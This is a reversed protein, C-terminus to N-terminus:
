YPRDRVHIWYLLRSLLMEGVFFIAVTVAIDVGSLSLSNRCALLPILSEPIQDLGTAGSSPPLNLRRKLFSSLLDGAMAGSGVLFGNKLDLGVFPACVSTVLVSLLIGRMTKSTGLVDSTQVMLVGPNSKRYSCPFKKVGGSDFDDGAFRWVADTLDPTHQDPHLTPKAGKDGGIRDV